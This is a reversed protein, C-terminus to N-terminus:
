KSLPRPWGQSVKHLTFFLIINSGKIVSPHCMRPHSWSHFSKQEKQHMKRPNIHNSKMNNLPFPISHNIWPPTRRLIVRVWGRPRVSCTAVNATEAVSGAAASYKIWTNWELTNRLQIEWNYKELTNRVHGVSVRSLMHLTHLQDWSEGQWGCMKVDKPSKSELHFINWM